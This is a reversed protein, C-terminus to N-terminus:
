ASGIILTQLEINRNKINEQILTRIEILFFGVEPTDEYVTYM